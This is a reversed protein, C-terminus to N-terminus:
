KIDLPDKLDDATGPLGDPGNPGYRLFDAYEDGIHPHGRSAKLAATGLSLHAKYEDEQFSLRQRAQRVAALAAPMDGSLLLIRAKVAPDAEAAAVAKWGQTWEDPLRWPVGALPDSLKGPGDPGQRQYELWANARLPHEDLARLASAVSLTAQEFENPHIAWAYLARMVGLSEEPKGEAVLWSAYQFAATRLAESAKADAAPMPNIAKWTAARGEAAGPRAAPPPLGSSVNEGQPGHTQYAAFRETAFVSGEVARLAIAVIDLTQQQSHQNVDPLRYALAAAALAADKDGILVWLTARRREAAPDLQQIDTTMAESVAERWAAVGGAERWVPPQEGPTSILGMIAQAGAAGSTLAAARAAWDLAQTTEATTRALTFWVKAAGLADKPLNNDLALTVEELLVERLVGRLVEDNLNDIARIAALARFTAADEARGEALAMRARMAPVWPANPAMEETLRLVEGALDDRGAELARKILVESLQARQSTHKPNALIKLAPPGCLEVIEKVALPPPTRALSERLSVAWNNQAWQHDPFRESASAFDAFAARFAEPNAMSLRLCRLMVSFYHSVRNDWETKRALKPMWEVAEALFDADSAITDLRWAQYYLYTDGDAPLSRAWETVTPWFADRRALESASRTPLLRVVDFWYTRYAWWQADPNDKYDALLKQFVVEQRAVRDEGQIGDRINKLITSEIAWQAEQSLNFEGARGEPAILGSLLCLVVAMVRLPRMNAEEGGPRKGIGSSGPLVIRIKPIDEM